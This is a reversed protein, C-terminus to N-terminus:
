AFSQVLMLMVHHSLTVSCLSILISSLEGAQTRAGDWDQVLQRPTTTALLSSDRAQQRAQGDMSACVTM